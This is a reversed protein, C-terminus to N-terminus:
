FILIIGSIMWYDFAAIIGAVVGLSRIPHQDINLAWRLLNMSWETRQALGVVIASMSYLWLWISTTFTSYLMTTGIIDRTNFWKLTAISVINEVLHGISTTYPLHEDEKILTFPVDLKESEAELRDFVVDIYSNFFFIEINTAFFYFISFIILTIFVDAALISTWTLINPNESLKAILLRTELLSLYDAQLNVVVLLFLFQITIIAYDFATSPWRYTMGWTMFYGDVEASTKIIPNLCLALSFFVFASLISILCSRSYCKGSLHQRGFLTDFSEIFTNPLDTAIDRVHMGSLWEGIKMKLANSSVSEAKWFFGATVTFAVCGGLLISLLNDGM